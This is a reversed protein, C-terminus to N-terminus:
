ELAGIRVITIYTSEIIVLILDFLTKKGRYVFSSFVENGLCPHKRFSFMFVMCFSSFRM